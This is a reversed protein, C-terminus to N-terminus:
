DDDCTMRMPNGEAIWYVAQLAGEGDVYPMRWAPTIWAPVATPWGDSVDTEVADAVFAGCTWPTSTGAASPNLYERPNVVPLTAAGDKTEFDDPNPGTCVVEVGSYTWMYDDADEFVASATIKIWVISPPAFAGVRLVAWVDGTTKESWLVAAGGYGPIFVSLDDDTPTAWYPRYGFESVTQTTMRLRAVTVGSVIARGLAGEALPETLVGYALPSGHENDGAVYQHGATFVPQNIFQHETPSGDQGTPSFVMDRLWLVDFRKRPEGSDNRVWVISPESGKSREMRTPKDGPSNRHAVAADVMANYAAAPIAM